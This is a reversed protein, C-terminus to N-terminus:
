IVVVEVIKDELRDKSLAPVDKNLLRVHRQLEVDTLGM